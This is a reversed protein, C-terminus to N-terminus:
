TQLAAYKKICFPIAVGFLFGCTYKLVAQSYKAEEHAIAIEARRTKAKQEIQKNEETKVKLDAIDVERRMDFLSKWEESKADAASLKVTLDEVKDDLTSCKNKFRNRELKLAELAVSSEEKLIEAKGEFEVRVDVVRKNISENMAHTKNNAFVKNAELAEAPTLGLSLVGGQMEASFNGEEFLTTIEKRDNIYTEDDRSVVVTVSAVDGSDTDSEHTCKLEFVATGICGYITDYRGLPDNLFFQMSTHLGKDNIRKAVEEINTMYASKARPHMLTSGAITTTILIDGDEHHYFGSEIYWAPIKTTITKMPKEVWRHGERERRLGNCSRMMIVVQNNQFSEDPPIEVRRNKDDIIVIPNRTGNCVITESYAGGLDKAIGFSLSKDTHPKLM